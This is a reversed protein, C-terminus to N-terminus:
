DSHRVLEVPDGPRLRGTTVVKAILGRKGYINKALRRHYRLLNSCPSNQGTIELAVGDGLLLRDGAVVDSLDGLGRVLVNEALDGPLLSIGLATNMEELAEQAVITVHRRSDKEEGTRLNTYRPGAHCDGELGYQGVQAEPQPYKPVGREQSLSVAVILGLKKISSQEKVTQTPM